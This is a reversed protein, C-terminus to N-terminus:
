RAQNTGHDNLGAEVTGSLISAFSNPTPVALNGVDM